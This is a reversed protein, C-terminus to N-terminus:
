GGALASWSLTIAHRIAGAAVIAATAVWPLPDIAPSRGKWVCRAICRIVITVVTVVTLTQWGIAAGFAALSARDNPGSMLGGLLWGLAIGAAASVLAAMLPEHPWRVGDPSLGPPGIDPVAAVAAVVPLIALLVARPSARLSRGLLSWTVILLLVGTHLVWSALLRFDGHVLLRDVGQWATAALWPLTRGGGVVEAAAVAAAIGGCAAEVLPYRPSIAAGCVRCRGRLLVWGLVPLNDRPLIPTGCAPCRSAGTVVSIGRPVRYVVVNIFSGLTAGWAFAMALIALEAGPFGAFSPAM